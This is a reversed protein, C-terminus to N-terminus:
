QGVQMGAAPSKVGHAQAALGIAKEPTMGPRDRNAEYIEQASVAVSLTKDSGTRSGGLVGQSMDGFHKTVLGTWDVKATSTKPNGQSVQQPKGDAGPAFRTAGEQLTYPKAADTKRSEEGRARETSRREAGEAAIQGLRLQGQAAHEAINYSFKAGETKRHEDGKVRETQRAESAKLIALKEQLALKAVDVPNASSMVISQKLQEPTMTLTSPRGRADVREIVYRPQGDMGKTVKVGTLHHGDDVTDYYTRAADTIDAGGEIAQLLSPAVQQRMQVRMGEDAVWQKMARDPHGMAFLKDTRAQAARLLVQNSPRYPARAPAPQAQAPQGLMAQGPMPQAGPAAAAPPPMAPSAPAVPEGTGASELAGVTAPDGLGGRYPRAGVDPAIPAAPQPTQAVPDPTQVSPLPAAGQDEYAKRDAEIVSVGAQRAAEDAALEADERSWQKRQRAQQEGQWDLAKQRASMAQGRELGQAMGGAFAGLNMGM